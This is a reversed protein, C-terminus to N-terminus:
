PTDPETIDPTRRAHRRALLNVAICLLGLVGALVMTALHSDGTPVVPTLGYLPPEALFYLFLLLQYGPVVGDSATALMGLAIVLIVIIWALAAFWTFRPVARLGAWLSLGIWLAAFSITTIITAASPPAAYATEAGGIFGAVVHACLLVAVPTRLHRSTSSPGNM